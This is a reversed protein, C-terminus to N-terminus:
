EFVVSVNLSDKFIDNDLCLSRLIKIYEQSNAILASHHSDSLKRFNM